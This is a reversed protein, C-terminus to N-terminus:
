NAKKIKVEVTGLKIESSSTIEVESDIKKKSVFTGNSSELDKITVKDAKVFITAHRRSLSSDDIIIDVGITRGVTNAGIKLEFEKNLKDVHLSYNARFNTKPAPPQRMVETIEVEAAPKIDPRKQFSSPPPEASKSAITQEEEKRKGFSPLPAPAEKASEFMTKHEEKSKGFSPLLPPADAGKEFVTKHEEKSKAFSPLPAAAEQRADFMTKDEEKPEPKGFTSPLGEESKNMMTKEVAPVIITSKPTAVQAPIAGGIQFIFDFKGAFTIVHLKDLKEKGKVKAGDLQTGNSSGLDELYYSKQSDDYTIRAHNSSVIDSRLVVSNNSGKGISAEGSIKFSTGAFLGTKSFLVANIAM